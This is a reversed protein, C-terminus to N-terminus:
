RVVGVKRRFTQTSGGGTQEIDLVLYYVGNNVVDGDGTRGSWVTDQHLGAPRTEGDILTKVPAGWLTYLKLTVRSPADLFFTIRTNQRGAAFPNPYNSFATEGGSGLIHTVATVLPYGVNGITAVAVTDGTVVDRVVVDATDAIVFRFTESGSAALNVSFTLTDAEGPETIVVSDPLEFTIVSANLSTASILTDGVHLAANSVFKTPDLAAKKWNQLRVTLASLESPTYGPPNDNRVVIDFADLGAEQGTVNPPISSILGCSIDDGALQLRSLDSFFPFEGAITTIREGTNVDRAVVHERDIRVRFESPSYVDRSSLYLRISDTQQPGFIVPPSLKAEVVHSVSSLSTLEALTDGSHVVHLQSFYNGPFLPAGPDDIFAMALSDVVISSAASDTHSLVVEMLPVNHTLPLIDQPVLSTLAASLGAAPRQFLLTPSEVPFTAPPAAAVVVLGGDNNDRATIASPDMLALYFGYAAPFARLDVVVSVDRAVGPPLTLENSLDCAIENGVSPIADDFYLGAGGSVLSLNRVVGDPIIPAGTTDYFSFAVARLIESATQPPGSNLLTFRFVEVQEQGNNAFFSGSGVTSVVLSDAAIEVDVPNTSWPFSAGTSLPVNYGDNADVVHVAAASQTALRFPALAADPAVDLNVDLRVSDGPLIRIPETLVLHLPNSVSDILAFPQNSGTSSVITIERLVTNPPIPIHSGDEVTIEIGEFEVPATQSGFTSFVLDLAIAEVNAQGRNVAIPTVDALTMAVEIPKEQIEVTPACTEISV